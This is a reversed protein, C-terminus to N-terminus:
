LPSREQKSELLAAAAGVIHKGDDLSIPLSPPGSASWWGSTAQYGGQAEVADIEEEIPILRYFIATFLVPLLSGIVVVRWLNEFQASEAPSGDPKIHFAQLLSASAARSVASGLSHCGSSLAVMTSQLDKPCLRALVLTLLMGHWTEVTHEIEGILVFASDSIGLKLNARTILIVHSIHLFFFVITTLVYVLRFSYRQLYVKYLWVGLISCICVASGRVSVYFMEDFHPGEPFQEITDTMFYFMASHFNLHCAHSLMGFILYGAITSSLLLRLCCIVVGCVCSSLALIVFPNRFNLVGVLLVAGAVLIVFCLITIERQQEFYKRWMLRSDVDGVPKEDSFGQLLMLLVACAPLVTMASLSEPGYMSIAVGAAFTGALSFMDGGIAVFTVLDTAKERTQQMRALYTAHSFIDITSYQASQLTLAAVLGPITLWSRPVAGIAAFGLIGLVVSGLMYPKKRYGYIPLVDSVLALIPQLLHPAHMVGALVTMRPAPVGHARFLYSHSHFTFEQMGRMLHRTVFIFVLLRYGFAHQLGSLWDHVTACSSEKASDCGKLGLLPDSEHPIRTPSQKPSVRDSQM